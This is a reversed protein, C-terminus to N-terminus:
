FELKYLLMNGPLKDETKIFGNKELVRISGTNNLEVGGSVSGINNEKKCWVVLGKILESGYGRKWSSESILYGLRLDYSETTENETYLFLFGIIENSDLLQIAYFYGDKKRDNVWKEVKEITTLNQWGNPLDKTVNPTMIKLVSELLRDKNAFSKELHIWNRVILRESIFLQDQKLRGVEANEM